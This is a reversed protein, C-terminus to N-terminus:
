DKAQEKLFASVDEQRIDIKQDTLTDVLYLYYLETTDPSLAGAMLRYRHDIPYTVIYLGSGTEYGKYPKLDDWTLAMGKQSLQEVKQLTLDVGVVSRYGIYVAALLLLVLFLLVLRKM